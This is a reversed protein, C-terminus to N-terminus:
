ETGTVSNANADGSLVVGALANGSILNGAIVNTDGDIVVIGNAGNALASGGSSRAGIINENLMNSDSTDGIVGIGSLGNASIVNFQVINSEGQIKVGFNANGADVVGGFDTGITNNELRVNNALIEIGDNPFNRINIKRIATGNANIRFGDIAGALATGDIAISPAAGTGPQTGGDINVGDTIFPLASALAITHPGAGPINFVINDPVGLVNSHANADLIAQRLSGPGADLTNVVQAGPEAFDISLNLTGTTAYNRSYVAIRYEQNPVASAISISSAPGALLTGTSSFLALQHTFTAGAVRVALGGTADPPATISVYDIDSNFDMIVTSTADGFVDPTLLISGTLFPAVVVISVNGTATSSEDAVAIIYRVAGALNLVLRADDVVTSLDDNYGVQAGTSALYVAVEPDVTNGFDGVNITYSGSLQPAFYYSDVDGLFDIFADFAPTDNVTDVSPGNYALLDAEAVTLTPPLALVRRSELQEHHLKRIRRRSIRAILNCQRKM